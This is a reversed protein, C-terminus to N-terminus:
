KYSVIHKYAGCKIGEETVVLADIKCLDPDIELIYGGFYEQVSEWDWRDLDYEDSLLKKAKRCADAKAFEKDTSFSMIQNYDTIVAMYMKM